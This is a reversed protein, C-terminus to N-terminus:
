ALAAPDARLVEQLDRLLRWSAFPEQAATEAAEGVLLSRATPLAASRSLNMLRILRARDDAGLPPRSEWADDAARRAEAVPDVSREVREARRMTVYGSAFSGLYLAALTALIAWTGVVPALTAGVVVGVTLPVLWRKEADLIRAVRAEVRQAVLESRRAYVRDIWARLDDDFAV